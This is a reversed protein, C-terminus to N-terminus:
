IRLPTMLVILVLSFFISRLFNIREIAVRATPTTAIGSALRTSALTPLGAQGPLTAPTRLRVRLRVRRRTYLFM